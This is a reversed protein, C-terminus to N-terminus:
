RGAPMLGSFAHGALRLPMGLDRGDGAAAGFPLRESSSTRLSSAAGTTATNVIMALDTAPNFTGLTQELYVANSPTIWAKRAAASRLLDRLGCYIPAHDAETHSVIDWDLLGHLHELRRFYRFLPDVTRQRRSGIPGASSGHWRACAVIPIPTPDLRQM